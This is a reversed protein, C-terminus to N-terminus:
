RLPELIDTGDGLTHTDADVLRNSRQSGKSGSAQDAIATVPTGDGTHTVGAAASIWLLPTGVSLPDFAAGSTATGARSRRRTLGIM